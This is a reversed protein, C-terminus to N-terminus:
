EEVRRHSDRISPSSSLISGRGESDREHSRSERGGLKRGFPRVVELSAATLRCRISKWAERQPPARSAGGGGGGGSFFWCDLFAVLLLLQLIYHILMCRHHQLVNWCCMCCVSVTIHSRFHFLRKRLLGCWFMLSRYFLFLLPDSARSLHAFSIRYAHLM